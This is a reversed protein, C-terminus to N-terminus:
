FFIGFKKNPIIRETSTSFDAKRQRVMKEGKDERVQVGVASRGEGKSKHLADLPERAPRLM